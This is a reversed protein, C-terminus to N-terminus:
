RSGTHRRGASHLLLFILRDDIAIALTLPRKGFVLALFVSEHGPLMDDIAFEIHLIGDISREVIGLFGHVSQGVEEAYDEIADACTPQLAVFVEIAAFDEVLFIHDIRAVDEVLELNEILFFGSDSM